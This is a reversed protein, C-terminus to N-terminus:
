SDYYIWAEQDCIQTLNSGGWNKKNIPCNKANRYVHSKHSNENLFPFLYWFSEPSNISQIKIPESSIKCNFYIRKGDKTFMTGKNEKPFILLHADTSFINYGLTIPLFSTKSLCPTLFNNLSFISLQSQSIDHLSINSKYWTLHKAPLMSYQNVPLVLWVM